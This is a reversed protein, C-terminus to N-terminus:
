KITVPDFSVRIKADQPPIASGHFRISNTDSHYTWGNSVNELIEVDNVWVRISSPVPERGLYFQTSLESIRGAILQLSTAFSTDCISGSIGETADILQKYRVGVRGSGKSTRCAADVTYIASTSFRKYTSTSNTYSSLFDVYSQVTHLGPSSYNTTATSTNNSFDDEDSVIVVALFAEDRRFGANLTSLLADKFSSFAREDGSGATGTKANILFAGEIDPTSNTIIPYGSKPTTLGDKLKAMTTRGEVTAKWADTATVGIHFDYGQLQFKQIFPRFNATLNTQDDGMSSSNDVVFLVDIKNNIFDPSQRFEEDEVLLSFTPKDGACSLLVSLLSLFLCVRFSKM